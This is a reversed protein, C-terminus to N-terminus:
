KASVGLKVGSFVNEDSAILTSSSCEFMGFDPSGKPFGWANSDSKLVTSDTSEFSHKLRTSSSDQFNAVHQFISELPKYMKKEEVKRKVKRIGFSDQVEDHDDAELEEIPKGIAAATINELERALIEFVLKGVLEDKLAIRSSRADSASFRVVHFEAVNWRM